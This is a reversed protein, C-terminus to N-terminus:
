SECNGGFLGEAGVIKNLNKPPSSASSLAHAFGGREWFFNMMENRKRFQVNFTELDIHKVCMSKKNFLQLDLVAHPLHQVTYMCCSLDTLPLHFTGNLSTIM